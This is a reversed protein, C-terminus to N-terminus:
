FSIRQFDRKSTLYVHHDNWYIHCAQPKKPTQHVPQDFLHYCCYVPECRNIFFVISIIGTLFAPSDLRQKLESYSIPTSPMNEVYGITITLPNFEKALIENLLQPDEINISVFCDQIARPLTPDDGLRCTITKFGPFCLYSM